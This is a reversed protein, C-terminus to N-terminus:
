APPRPRWSCSSPPLRTSEGDAGDAHRRDLCWVDAPQEQRIREAPQSIPRRWRMSVFAARAWEAALSKTLHHVAGKVRQLLMAGTAQNVIFRVDLRYQRHAPSQASCTSASPACCLLHMLNVDIVNLWHEDTVQEAPTESRRHRCQQGSYRHRRLPVGTPRRGRRRAALRSMLSPSRPMWGRAQLSPAARAPFNNPGIPTVVRAGADLAEAALRGIGQGAGTVIPPKPGLLNALEPQALRCALAPHWIATRSTV